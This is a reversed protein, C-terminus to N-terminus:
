SRDEETTPRRVAHEDEEGALLRQWYASHENESPEPVGVRGNLDVMRGKDWIITCRIGERSVVAEFGHKVWKGDIFLHYM